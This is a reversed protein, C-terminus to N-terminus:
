AHAGPTKRKIPIHLKPCILTHTHTNTHKNDTSVGPRQRRHFPQSLLSPPKRRESRMLLSCVGGASLSSGSTGACSSTSAFAAGCAPAAAGCGVAAVGLARRDRVGAAAAVVGARVGAAPSAPGGSGALVARRLCPVARLHFCARTYHTHRQQVCGAM